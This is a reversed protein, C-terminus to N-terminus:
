DANDYIKVSATVTGIIETEDAIPFFSHKGNNFSVKGKDKIYRRCLFRGEHRLMVINCSKPIISRDVVLITGRSLGLNEMDASDLRVFITAPPNKILERNLDINQEEYGQAPSAFGSTTNGM